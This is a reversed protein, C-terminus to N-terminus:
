FRFQQVAILRVHNVWQVIGRYMRVSMTQRVPRTRKVYARLEELSPLDVDPAALGLMAQADARLMREIELQEGCEACQDLHDRIRTAEAQAYEDLAGDLYAHLAGKDVHSMRSRGKM